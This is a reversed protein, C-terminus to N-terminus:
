LCASDDTLEALRLELARLYMVGFYEGLPRGLRTHEEIVADKDSDGLFGKLILWGFLQPTTQVRDDELYGAAIRRATQDDTLFAQGTKKAFVTSSLEGKSLKQRRELVGVENLDDLDISHVCFRSKRREQM